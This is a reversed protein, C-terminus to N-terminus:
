STYLYSYSYNQMFHPLYYLSTVCSYCIRVLVFVAIVNWVFSYLLKCAQIFILANNAYSFVVNGPPKQYYLNLFVHLASIYSNLAHLLSFQLTYSTLCQKDFISSYSNRNCQGVLSGKLFSYSCRMVVPSDSDDSVSLHSSCLFFGLGTTIQVGSLMSDLCAGCSGCVLWPAHRPLM